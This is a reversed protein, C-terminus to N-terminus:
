DFCYIWLEPLSVSWILLLHNVLTEPAGSFFCVVGPWIEALVLEACSFWLYLFENLYDLSFCIYFRSSLYSGSRFIFCRGWLDGFDLLSLSFLKDRWFGSGCLFVGCDGMSWAPFICIFMLTFLSFGTFVNLSGEPFNSVSRKVNIVFLYSYFICHEPTSLIGVYFTHCTDSVVYIDDEVEFIYHIIVINSVVKHM